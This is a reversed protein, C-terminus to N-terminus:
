TLLIYSFAKSDSRQGETYRMLRKVSERDAGILQFGAASIQMNFPNTDAHCPFLLHRHEHEQARSSCSHRTM